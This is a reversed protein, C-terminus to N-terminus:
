TATTVRLLRGHVSRGIVWAIRDGGMLCGFDGVSIHRKLPGPTIRISIRDLIIEVYTIAGVVEEEESFVQFGREVMKIFQIPFRCEVPLHYGLVKLVDDPAGDPGEPGVIFLLNYQSDTWSGIAIVEPSNL